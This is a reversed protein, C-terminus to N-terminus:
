WDVFRNKQKNSVREKEEVRTRGHSGVYECVMGGIWDEREDDEKERETLM